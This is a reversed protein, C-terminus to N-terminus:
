QQRTGLECIEVLCANFGDFANGVLRRADEFVDSIRAEPSFV